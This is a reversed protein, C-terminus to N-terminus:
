LSAPTSGPQAALRSTNRSASPAWYYPSDRANKNACPSSFSFELAVPAAGEIPDLATRVRPQVLAPSAVPLSLPAAAPDTRGLFRREDRLLIFDKLGRTHLVGLELAIEFAFGSDSGALKDALDGGDTNKGSVPTVLAVDEDRIVLVNIVVCLRNRTFKQTRNTPEDSVM